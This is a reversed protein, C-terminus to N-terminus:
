ICFSEVVELTEMVVLLTALDVEVVEKHDVPQKEQKPLAKKMDCNM